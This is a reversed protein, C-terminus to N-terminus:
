DGKGEPPSTGQARAWTNLRDVTAADPPIYLGLTLVGDADVQKILEMPIGTEARVRAVERALFAEFEEPTTELTFSARLPTSKKHKGM